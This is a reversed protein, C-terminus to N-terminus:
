MSHESELQVLKAKMVGESTWKAITEIIETQPTIPYAPVYDVDALRAAWAAATNGTMMEVERM